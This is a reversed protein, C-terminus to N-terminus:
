ASTYSTTESLFAEATVAQATNGSVEVQLHMVDKPIPISIETVANAAVGCGVDPLITKWVSGAAGAAPTTGSDHAAHVKIVAQVTPGTAGNTVKVTLTGGHATRLDVVGRQPAGAAVSTAAAILTRASKNATITPM